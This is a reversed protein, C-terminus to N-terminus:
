VNWWRETAVMGLHGFVLGVIFAFPKLSPIIALLLATVIVSAIGVLILILFSKM